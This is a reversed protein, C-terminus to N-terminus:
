PTRVSVWKKSWSPNDCAHRVVEPWWERLRFFALRHARVQKGEFQLYGYGHENKEGPFIICETESAM